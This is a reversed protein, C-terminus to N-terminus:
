AVLDLALSARECESFPAVHGDGAVSLRQESEGAERADRTHM